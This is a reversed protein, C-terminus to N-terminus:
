SPRQGPTSEVIDPEWYDMLLHPGKLLPEFKGATKSGQSPETMAKVMNQFPTIQLEQQPFCLTTNQLVISASNLSYNKPHHGAGM